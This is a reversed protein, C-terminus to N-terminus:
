IKLSIIAPLEPNYYRMMSYGMGALGLMFSPTEQGYPLGCNWQKNVFLKAMVQSYEICKTFLDEKQSKCAYMTLIELNGIDGHCLSHTGNFGYKMTTEAAIDMEDMLGLMRIIKEYFQIDITGGNIISPVKINDQVTLEPLLHFSQFVFGYNEGRIRAQRKEKLSYYDLNKYYVKGSTPPELGALMSLLTTKGSGSKGRILNRTGKQITINTPKIVQNHKDGNQYEKVLKRCILLEQLNGKKREM